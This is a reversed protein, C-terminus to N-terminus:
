CILLRCAISYESCKMVTKRVAGDFLVVAHKYKEGTM